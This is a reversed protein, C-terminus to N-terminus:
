DSNYGWIGTLTANQPGWADNCQAYAYWSSYASGLLQLESFPSAGVPYSQVTSGVSLAQTGATIGTLSMMPMGLDFTRLVSNVRYADIPVYRVGRWPAFLSVRSRFAQDVRRSLQKIFRMVKADDTTNEALLEGRVDALTAYLSM